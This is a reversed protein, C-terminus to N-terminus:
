WRLGEVVEVVREPMSLFPSHGSGCRETQMEVGTNKVFEVQIFIPLAQDNECLLYTSSVYRYAENTLPAIQASAPHPKLLSTWHSQLSPSLNNYFRQQPDLMNCTGDSQSLINLNPQISSAQPPSPVDHSRVEVPIFPPLEGGLPTALSEGKLLLFACMYLLKVVGDKMGKRERYTRSFEETVAETGVMGGNSHMVVIVEKGKDDVLKSLVTKIFAADDQLTTTAPQADYSPQVACLVEYSQSKLLSIQQAFHDPHHWAGHLILITSKITSMAFM